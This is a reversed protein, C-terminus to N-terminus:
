KLEVRHNNYFLTNTITDVKYIDIGAERVLLDDAHLLAKSNAKGKTIISIINQANTAKFTGEVLSWDRYITEAFEPFIVTTYWKELNPDYEEVILRFWLNLADPEGNYMWLSLHYAKEKEFTGPGFQALLNRGKKVSAFAGKGRFTTDSSRNEYDDYFLFSTDSVLFDKQPFLSAEAERFQAVVKSASSKFLDETTISYLEISRNKFIFTGKELLAKENDTTPLPAKVVLFPKDSPLDQKIAKPYFDPSILQVINKSEWVSTRTLSANVLPLGTHYSMVISTRMAENPRPRAYSESGYYYFPISIIAQYAETNISEIADQLPSPLQEKVFLNPSQTIARSIHFHHPLAELINLLAVLTVMGIGLFRKQDKFHFYRQQTLTSSWVLLAFYLPWSFRGTARFQKLIPFYELLEPFQKFPIGMAFLFLLVGALLGHNLQRNPFFTRQFAPFKRKSLAIFFSILAILLMTVTAMGVYSWAEWELKIANGTLQDLVTRLPGHHPILLDDPEANYLFFGSPNDTRGSHTDTLKTYSFFLLLPLLLSGLLPWKPLPLAEKKGFFLFSLFLLLLFAIVIVGLYAHIFLWFLNNIFLLAIWAYSIPKKTIKLFLLWSLPLALSYSLAFHDELRFLQPALLTIGLSFVVALWPIIEFERLLFYCAIFTLFIAFIMKWNLLGISYNHIWPFIAGTTKLLNALVPHCDTYLYHEGYPYNMGEFNVFSTDHKIHYAYTFYNKIGDGADSFFYQNPQFIIQHYFSFTFGAALFFLSFIPLLKRM